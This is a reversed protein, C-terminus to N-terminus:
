LAHDKGKSGCFNLKSFVIGHDGCDFTKELNCFISGVLLKNNMTNLIESKLKLKLKRKMKILPFMYM